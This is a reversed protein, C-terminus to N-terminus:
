ASGASQHPSRPTEELGDPGFTEGMWRVAADASAQSHFSALVHVGTGSIVALVPRKRGWVPGIYLSSGDQRTLSRGTRDAM